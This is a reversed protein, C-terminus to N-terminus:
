RSEPRYTELFKGVFNGEETGDPKSITWDVLDDERLSYSDGSRYGAVTMVENAIKGEIVGGKIRRVAIFTFEAHGAKDGLRATVFFTHGPPLGALFRAKAQPYTKRAKEIYPKIAREVATLAERTEVSVPKDKPANPAIEIPKSKEQPSAVARPLFLALGLAGIIVLRKM